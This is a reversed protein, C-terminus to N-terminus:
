QIASETRWHSCATFVEARRTRMFGRATRRVAEYNAKILREDIPVRPSSKVPPLCFCDAAIFSGIGAARLGEQKGPVRHSATSSSIACKKWESACASVSVTATV